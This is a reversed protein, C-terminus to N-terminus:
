DRGRVGGRAEEESEVVAAGAVGRADGSASSGGSGGESGGGQFPSAAEAYEAKWSALLRSGSHYEDHALSLCQPAAGVGCDSQRRSAVM